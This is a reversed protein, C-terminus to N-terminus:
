CSQSDDCGQQTSDKQRPHMNAEQGVPLDGKVPKTNSLIVQVQV